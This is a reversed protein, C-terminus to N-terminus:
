KEVIKGDIVDYERFPSFEKCCLVGIDTKFQRGDELEFCYAYWRANYTGNPLEIIHHRLGNEFCDTKEVVGNTVRYIEYRTMRRSRRVGYDMKYKRGDSLEFIWAYFLACYIGNPLESIHPMEDEGGNNTDNQVSECVEKKRFYDSLFKM